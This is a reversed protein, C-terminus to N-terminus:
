AGWLELYVAYAPAAYLWGDFRDLVGGHGPLWRGSDKIGRRRKWASETFDGATALMGVAAGLWAQDWGWQWGAVVAAAVLGGALGEWSKGPSIAPWIKHRGMPKGVLYAGTDNAWIMGVLGLVRWGDYGDPGQGALVMSGWVGALGVAVAWAQGTRWAVGGLRPGDVQWWERWGMVALAGWMAAHVWPGAAMGGLMGVVLLAGWRARVGTEGM